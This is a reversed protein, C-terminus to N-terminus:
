AARALVDEVVETVEERNLRSGSIRPSGGITEAGGWRDDTCGEADNLAELIEPVPFPIFTSMRGVSYTYRGEGHDSQSIFARVGDAFMKTRAQAGREVVMQWRKGGGIVDYNVSLAIADGRGVIHQSIRGCVDDVISRFQEAKRGRLGGMLRFNTYPQYIWALERLIPMDISLPYAGATTDLEDEMAVLRNLVPNITTSSMEPHSLLYWTTCVDQDCDNAFVEARIGRDDRFTEFLGQRIAMLVQACTARTGLRDVGEHHNFNIIPQGHPGKAVFFPGGSVYGDLAMAFPPATAIFRERSMAPTMPEMHLVAGM